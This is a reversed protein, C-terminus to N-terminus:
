AASSSTLTLAEDKTPVRAGEARCFADAKAFRAPSDM